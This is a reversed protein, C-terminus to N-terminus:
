ERRMEPNYIKALVCVMREMQFDEDPNWGMKRMAKLNVKRFAEKHLDVHHM